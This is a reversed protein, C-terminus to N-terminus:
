FYEYICTFIYIHLIYKGLTSVTKNILPGQSSTIKYGMYHLILRIVWTVFDVTQLKSLTKIITSIWLTYSGKKINLVHLGNIHHNSYINRLYVIRAPGHNGCTQRTSLIGKRATNWTQDRLYLCNSLKNESNHSYHAFFMLLDYEIELSEM